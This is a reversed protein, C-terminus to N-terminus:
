RATIVIGAKLLGIPVITDSVSSIFSQMHQFENYLGKPFPPEGTLMGVVHGEVHRYTKTHDTGKSNRRGTGHQYYNNGEVLGMYLVQDEYPNTAFFGVRKSEGIDIVGKRYILQDDVQCAANHTWNNYQRHRVGLRMLLREIVEQRRNLAEAERRNAEEINAPTIKEPNMDTHIIATGYGPVLPHNKLLDIFHNGGGIHIKEERLIRAVERTTTADIPIREHIYATMGCGVDDRLIEQNYPTGECYKWVSGNPLGRKKTNETFILVEELGKTLSPKPYFFQNGHNTIRFGETKM